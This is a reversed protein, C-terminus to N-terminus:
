FSNSIAGSLDAILLLESIIERRPLPTTVNTSDKWHHSTTSRFKQQHILSTM